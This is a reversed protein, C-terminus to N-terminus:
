EGKGYIRIQLNDLKNIQTDFEALIKKATKIKIDESLKNKNKMLNATNDYIRSLEKDENHFLELNYLTFLDNIRQCYKDFLVEKNSLIDDELNSMANNLRENKTTLENTVKKTMKKYEKIDIHENESNKIGRELNFGKDILRKYYMDQLTSLHIKDKIYQKKSITYRNTNTRKDFKKILPIVVCHIHSTKEDMHITAHLVQEEKYGLDKYVFEMCTDAWLKINDNNMNKFFNNTATFLLEDAVVNKSGDVAQRFTKKRDERETIMREDHEKKYEKTVNYFGKVYKDALPKLEINNITKELDIDPNYKYSKKDRKNHAGIQSLDALTYIPESRFIAYNLNM